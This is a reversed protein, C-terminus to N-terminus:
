RKLLLCFIRWKCGGRKFKAKKNSRLAADAFCLKFYVGFYVEFQIGACLSDYVKFGKSFLFLEAYFAFSRFFRKYSKIFLHKKETREGSLNLRKLGQVKPMWFMPSRRLAIRICDKNTEFCRFTNSRRCGQPLKGACKM